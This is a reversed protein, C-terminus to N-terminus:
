NNTETHKVTRQLLVWKNFPIIASKDSITCFDDLILGTDKQGM